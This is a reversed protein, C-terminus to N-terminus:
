RRAELVLDVGRPMQEDYIELQGVPAHLKRQRFKYHKETDAGTIYNLEHENLFALANGRDWGGGKNVRSPSEAKNFRV